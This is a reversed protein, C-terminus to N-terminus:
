RRTITYNRSTLGLRSVPLQRNDSRWTADTAFPSRWAPFRRCGQGLVSGDHRAGFGPNAGGYCTRNADAVTVRLAAPRDRKAGDEYTIM